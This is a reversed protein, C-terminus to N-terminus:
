ETGEQIVNYGGLDIYVTCSGDAGYSYRPPFEKGVVISILSGSKLGKKYGNTVLEVEAGIQPVINSDIEFLISGSLEFCIRM